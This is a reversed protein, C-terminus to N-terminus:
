RRDVFSSVETTETAEEDDQKTGTEDEDLCNGRVAM